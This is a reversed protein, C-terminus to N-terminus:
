GDQSPKKGRRFAEMAPLAQGFTVGHATAIEEIEKQFASREGPERAVGRTTTVRGLLAAATVARGERRLAAAADLWARAKEILDVDLSLHADLENQFVDIVRQADTVLHKVPDIAYTVAVVLPSANEPAEMAPKPDLEVRTEVPAGASLAPPEGEGDVLWERPVKAVEAMRRLANTDPRVAERELLKQVYGRSQGAQTSWASASIPLNEVVYRVRESLKMDALNGGAPLNM